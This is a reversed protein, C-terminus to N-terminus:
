KKRKLDSKKKVANSSDVLDNRDPNSVLVYSDVEGCNPCQYGIPPASFRQEGCKTCRYKPM